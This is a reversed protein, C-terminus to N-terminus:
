DGVVQRECLVVDQSEPGMKPSRTGTRPPRAQLLWEPGDWRRRASSRCLELGATGQQRFMQLSQAGENPTQLWWVEQVDSPHSRWRHLLRPGPGGVTCLRYGHGVSGPISVPGKVMSVKIDMVPVDPDAAQM